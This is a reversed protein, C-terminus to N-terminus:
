LREGNLQCEVGNYQENDNHAPADNGHEGAVCQGSRPGVLTWGDVPYRQAQGPGQESHIGSHCAVCVTGVM